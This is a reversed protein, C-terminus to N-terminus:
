ATAVAPVQKFERNLVFQQVIGLVNSSLYYLSLGAPFNVLMVTFILPSLMMMRQQNPDPSTPMMWQQLFTSVGMLLVLVPIGGCHTMPLTPMGAIKLCDPVSLDTIWGIFPAHRLEVSNLLAEYLGIFVPLQLIMPACGGLPNVHNRKYLDVMERQLREQDDAFKERIKAIQPQLRQMRIMSRQSRISMPLLALRIGLTLLIIDLGYNPAILHFFKLTRLFVLALIGTWGFDIAKSLRPDVAELLDIQKPGMYVLTSLQHAGAFFVQADAQTGNFSMDLTGPSTSQPLFVSLFYRDGFGAYVIAGQAPEVGKTLAKQAEVIAHDGVYAQIEPIDYYGAHATLPQAMTLGIAEPAGGSQDVTMDFAYSGASFTFTKRITLGAPAQASFAVVAKEGSNLMVRAPADSTYDLAQDDLSAAGLKIVVGLPLSGGPAPKVMQYWPSDAASTERFKKLKFSKLRAGHSTFVAEFLETDVEFDREAARALAPAAALHTGLAAPPPAVIPIAANEPTSTVGQATPVPAAQREPPPYLRKLVLEQYAVVLGLSLIVAILIRTEL